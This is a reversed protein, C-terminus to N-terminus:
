KRTGRFRLAGDEGFRLDIEKEKVNGNMYYLDSGIEYATGLLNVEAYGTTEIEMELTNCVIIVKIERSSERIIKLYADYQLNYQTLKGEYTGAIAGAPNETDLGDEDDDGCSVFSLSVFMMVFTMLVFRFDKVKM